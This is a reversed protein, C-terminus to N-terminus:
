GSATMEGKKYEAPVGAPKTFSVLIKNGGIDEIDLTGPGNETEREFVLVQPDLVTHTQHDGSSTGAAIEIAGGNDTNEYTLGRFPLGKSLYQAGMEDSLVEITSEWGMYRSSLGDLFEAWDPRNIVETKM